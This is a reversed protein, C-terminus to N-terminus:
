AKDESALHKIIMSDIQKYAKKLKALTGIADKNLNNEIERLHKRQLERIEQQKRVLDQTFTADNVKDNISVLIQTFMTIIAGRGFDGGNQAEIELTKIRNSIFSIQSELNFSTELNKVITTM